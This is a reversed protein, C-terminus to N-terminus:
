SRQQRSQIDFAPVKVLQEEYELILILSALALSFGASVPPEQDLLVYDQTRKPLCQVSALKAYGAINAFKLDKPAPFDYM